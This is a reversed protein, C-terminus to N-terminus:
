AMYVSLGPGGVRGAEELRRRRPTSPPISSSRHRDLLSALSAAPSLWDFRSDARSPSARSTGTSIRSSSAETSTKFPLINSFRLSDRRSRLPDSAGRRSRAGLEVYAWILAPPLPQLGMEFFGKIVESPLRREKCEALPIWEVAVQKRDQERGPGILLHADLTCRFSPKGASPLRTPAASSTTGASTIRSRLPPASKSRPRGIEEM